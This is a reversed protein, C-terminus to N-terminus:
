GMMVESVKKLETAWMVNNNTVLEFIHTRRRKAIEEAGENAWGALRVSVRVSAWTKPKEKPIDCASRPDCRM